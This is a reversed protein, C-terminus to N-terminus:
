VRGAGYFTTFVTAQKKIKRSSIVPAGVLLLLLAAIMLLLIVWSAAQVDPPALLLYAYVYQRGIQLHMRAYQSASRVHNKKSKTTHTYVFPAMKVRAKSWRATLNLGLEMNYGRKFSPHMREWLERTLCRLGSFVGFSSAPAGDVSCSNFKDSGPGSHCGIMMHVQGKQVPEVVARIIDPDIVVDADCLLIIPRRSSAIGRDVSEAKGLNVANTLVLSAGAAAAAAATGDDSGDDVVIIEDSVQSQLVGHLAAAIRPSENLAAIVVCINQMYGYPKTQPYDTKYCCAQFDCRKM